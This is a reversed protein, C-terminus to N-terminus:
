GRVWEFHYADEPPDSYGGEIIQTCVFDQSRFFQQAALASERLNVVLKDKVWKGKFDHKVAVLLHSAVGSRLCDRRTAVSWVVLADRYRQVAVYGVVHGRYEMLLVKFRREGLATTFDRFGWVDAQDSSNEVAVLDPVDAATAFRIVADPGGEPDPTPSFLSRIRSWLSM